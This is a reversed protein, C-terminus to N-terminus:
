VRLKHAFSGETSHDLYKQILESIQYYPSSLPVHAAINNLSSQAFDQKSWHIKEEIYSRNALNELYELIFNVDEPVMKEIWKFMHHAHERVDHYDCSNHKGNAEPFTDNAEEEDPYDKVLDHGIEKRGIIM